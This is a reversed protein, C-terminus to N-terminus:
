ASSAEWWAYMHVRGTRVDCLARRCQTGERWEKIAVRSPLQVPTLFQTDIRGSAPLVPVPTQALSRALSWMGHGIAGRLGFFRAARNSLHIPNYDASARAYAWATGRTVDLEALGASDKPARPPRPPRAGSREVPETWRSLFGCNERWLAQGGACIETAMDFTIGADTRQYNRAVVEIAVDMGPELRGPTEIWNTLHILGMPRLPFERQAFIKLHLPMALVHPFTVPVGRAPDFGCMAAYRAISRASLKVRSVTAVFEPADVVSEIPPRENLVVRPYTAWVAPLKGLPLRRPATV